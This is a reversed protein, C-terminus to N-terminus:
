PENAQRRDLEDVLQRAQQELPGKLEIARMLEQRASVSDNRQLFAKALYFHAEELYPSDGLTITQRLARIGEDRQGSFVQCIGLFFTAHAAEPDLRAAARLGAIAGRYDGRAYLTMGERFRAAATDQFGRLSGSTFPPPEFRGLEALTVSASASASQGPQGQGPAVQGPTVQGPTVQGPPATASGGAPQGAPTAPTEAPSRFVRPWVVVSVIVLTAFTPVLTWKWIWGRRAREPEAHLADATAALEHRVARLTELREFCAECEFLHEDFADRDPQELRGLLYREMLERQTIEECTMHALHMMALHTTPRDGGHTV